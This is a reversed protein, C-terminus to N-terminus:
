VERGVAHPSFDRALAPATPTSSVRLLVLHCLWSPVWIVLSCFPPKLAEFDLDQAPKFLEVVMITFATLVVLAHVALRCGLFVRRAAPFRRTNSYWVILFLHMLGIAVASMLVACATRQKESLRPVSPSQPTWPESALTDILLLTLAYLAMLVAVSFMFYLVAKWGVQPDRVESRSDRLVLVAYPIALALLAPFLVVLPLLQGTLSELDHGQLQPFM